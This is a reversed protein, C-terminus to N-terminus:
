LSQHPFNPFFPIRSRSLIPFSKRRRQETIPRSRRATEGSFQFLPFAKRTSPSRPSAEKDYGSQLVAESRDPHLRGVPLFRHIRERVRESPVIQSVSVQHCAIKDNPCARLCAISGHPSRSLTVLSSSNTVSGFPRQSRAYYIRGTCRTVWHSSVPFSGCM